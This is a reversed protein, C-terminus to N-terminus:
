APRHRSVACRPRHLCVVRHGFADLRCLDEHDCLVSRLTLPILPSTPPAALSYVRAGTHPGTHLAPPSHRARGWREWAAAQPPDALDHGFARQESRNTIRRAACHETRERGDWFQGCGHLSDRASCWHKRALSTRLRSARHQRLGLRSCGTSCRCGLSCLAGEHRWRRMSWFFLQCRARFAPTVLMARWFNRRWPGVLYGRLCAGREFKLRTVDIRGYMPLRDGFLTAMM